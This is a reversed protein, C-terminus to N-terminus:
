HIAISVPFVGHSSLVQRNTLQMGQVSFAYITNSGANVGILLHHAADFQLSGQSALPDSTAGNLRGGAGGTAFTATQTLAGSNDRQYEIVKNIDNGNSQVFVPRSETGQASATAFSSGLILVAAGAAYFSRPFLRM